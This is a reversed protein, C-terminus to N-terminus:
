KKRNVSGGFSPPTMDKAEGIETSTVFESENIPSGIVIPVLVSRCNYHLPPTMSSLAEDDMRFVKGDLHTCQPTTREDLIASFRMGQVFEGMQRAETVRGMNYATTSNTRIITDLRYPEIQKQDRLVNTDGVYPEFVNRLKSRIEGLTEGSEIAGMLVGKVDRLVSDRMLGSVVIKKRSLWRLAETPAFTPAQQYQKKARKVEKQIHRVGEEYASRLFEKVVMQVEGMGKLKLEDKTILQALQDHNKDIYKIMSDRSQVMIGRLKSLTAQELLNLRREIEAFDVHREGDTIDRSLYEKEELNQIEPPVEDEVPFVEEEESPMEPEPPKVINDENKEPFRLLDRIHDEDDTQPVVVGKEVAKTWVELLDVRVEDTMPLFKFEPYEDMEGYNLDIMPKLIQEFMVRREIRKRLYEVLMIFVDFHKKSRAYSGEATDPTFGLLGPMLVARAIDRNCMDIAPIFVSRAQNALQPTWFDLIDTGKGDPKTPRPMIGVTAAQMNRIIDKLDNKQRTNYSNPDYLAFIPPIGLRELYMAMWQYVNVKTWWPRYASELDSKGYWNGFEKDNVYVVFKDVPMEVQEDQQDQLLAKLNGHEDIDFNFSHPKRAKLGKVAIKGKYDGKEVERWIIESVSYGFELFTLVELLVEELTGEIRDLVWWCFMAPEWEDSKGEPVTIEWGTSLVAHKKFSMAAKVQDDQRMKEFVELGYRTVLTSPNYPIWTNAPFLRKPDSWGVERLLQERSQTGDTQFAKVANRVRDIVTMNEEYYFLGFVL